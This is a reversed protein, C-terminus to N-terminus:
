LHILTITVQSWGTCWKSSGSAETKKIKQAEQLAGKKRKKEERNFAHKFDPIDWRKPDSVIPKRGEKIKETGKRIKCKEKCPGWDGTFNWLSWGVKEKKILSDINPTSGL